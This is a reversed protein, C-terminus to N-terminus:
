LYLSRYTGVWPLLDWRSSLASLVVWVKSPYPHSRKNWHGIIDLTHPFKNFLSFGTQTSHEGRFLSKKNFFIIFLNNIFIHYEGASLDTNPFVIGSTSLVSYTFLM